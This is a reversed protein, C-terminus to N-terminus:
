TMLLSSLQITFCTMLTVPNHLNQDTRTYLDEGAAALNRQFQNKRTGFNTTCMSFASPLPFFQLLGIQLLATFKMNHWARHSFSVNFFTLPLRLSALFIHLSREQGVKKENTTTVHLRRENPTFLLSSFEGM